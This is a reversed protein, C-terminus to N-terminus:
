RQYALAQAAVHQHCAFVQMCVPMVHPCLAWAHGPVAVQLVEGRAVPAGESHFMAAAQMGDGRMGCPGPLTVGLEPPPTGGPTRSCVSTYMYTLRIPQQVPVEWPFAAGCTRVMAPTNLQCAHRAAHRQMLQGPLQQSVCTAAGPRMGEESCSCSAGETHPTCGRAGHPHLQCMGCMDTHRVHWPM